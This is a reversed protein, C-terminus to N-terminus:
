QDDPPADDYDDDTEEFAGYVVQAIQGSNLDVLVIDPGYRVWEFDPPPPELGYDVYDDIYYDHVWYRRPFIYGVEYRRYGYGAPWNYRSAEFRSYSHGRYMYSRGHAVRQLHSGQRFGLAGHAARGPGAGGNHFGGASGFHGTAPRGNHFGGTSGFHGTAPRGNHFGGTSGFHSSGPSNNHFGGTSGFHGMGNRTGNASGFGRQNQINSQPRSFANSRQGGFNQSPPRFTQAPRSQQAPRSSGGSPREKAYGQSALLAVAGAVSALAVLGKQLSYKM